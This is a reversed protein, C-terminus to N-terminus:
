NNTNDMNDNDEMYMTAFRKQMDKSHELHTRLSPLSSEAWKQIEMDDSNEAADEYFEITDEHGNVMKDTYAKNFDDGSRKNMDNYAETADQTIATPISIRKSQALAQLESLSKNHADEMMKGLEKVEPTTGKEQALQGLKIQEMNVEAANVLFQADNQKDNDDFKEENRDEAIEKTGDPTQTDCSTFMFISAAFTAHLLAGKIFTNM